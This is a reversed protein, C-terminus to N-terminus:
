GISVMVSASASSGHPPTLRLKVLSNLRRGPHEALLRREALTAKVTVTVTKAEGVRKITRSLGKGSAVLKGAFPVRATITVSRGRAKHRLVRVAAKCGEVAIKTNQHIQAGDQATFATPMTLSQTCLDGNAALASNSGEPLTLEFTSVPVDPVERFTSSTIGTKSIFTEGHLDVTVGSGQLVVVLEPFKQNGHSVFYAPGELPVPLIPTTAKALGVRSAAPCGAPNAEFVEVTCAKQLTTLRSPLQKPLDVKVSRINAQAGFAAKPFSLLVHLAAGGLRSTKASTSVKFKPKFGLGACNTVQFHSSVPDVAGLGGTLTGSIDLPDCDTPNFIFKSRDINVNVTRLDLPIGDLITPLAETTVTLAATRPDVNITGRVVVTGLDFPGAKAPTVVSLGYPTGKYPGTIFVKGGTVYFPNAGAGAAVTLSGIESSAPCTGTAAQPEECLSVSAISGLLGTPLTMSVGGLQQEGDARTFTLSFPSFGGAQNSTTGATFGPAFAQPSAPCPGGDPGSTIQFSSTTVVPPTGSWPTLSAETTYTGCYPPNVLPSRPGAKFNLKLHDFPLEPNDDFTAKIRGSQPDLEVRGALKLIVGHGEVVIYMKVLRGSQDDAVTCPACEPSALYVAGSLPDNLVPTDIEVTGLKSGDPCAAPAGSGLGIQVPSCGELGDAASPSISEGAPLTFVADKVDATGLGQPNLLGEQPLSIEVNLGSPTDAQHNTPDVGISPQFPVRECGATGEQSGWASPPEPWGPPLHSYLLQESYVGPQEWSDVKLNTALGVGPATCSVPMTILPVPTGSYANPGFPTGPTGPCVPGSGSDVLGFAGWDCRQPDHSKDAPNGWFTLTSGDLPLATPINASFVNVGFDGRNRVSTDILVAEGLADFGFMAPKGAPPVMNYVPFTQSAHGEATLPSRLTITGVESDVPCESEFFHALKAEPCQAVATPNGLLGPPLEAIIDKPDSDPKEMELGSHKVFYGNLYVETTIEYPHGGAQTYTGGSEAVIQQDFAKIGFQARAVTTGWALAIVAVAALVAVIVASTRSQKAQEISNTSM